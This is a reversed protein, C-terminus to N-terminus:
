RNRIRSQRGRSAVDPSRKTPAWPLSTSSLRQKGEFIVVDDALQGRALAWGLGGPHWGTPWLRSALRQLESIDDPGAVARASM